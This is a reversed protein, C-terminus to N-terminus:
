VNKPVLSAPTVVDNAAPSARSALATSVFAAPFVPSSLAKQMLPTGLQAVKKEYHRVDHEAYRLDGDDAGFLGGDHGIQMLGGAPSDEREQLGELRHTASDLKDFTRHVRGIEKLTPPDAWETPRNFMMALTTIVADRPYVPGRGAHSSATATPHGFVTRVAALSMEITPM